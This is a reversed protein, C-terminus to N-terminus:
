PTSTTLVEERRATDGPEDDDALADPALTGGQVPRLRGALVVSALGAACSLLGVFAFGTMPEGKEQQLLMGGLATTVGLTLHQVATNLSMFSGRHQPATSATMMAMAPVMRGSAAITMLTTTALVVLLGAGPWLNTLILISVMTLLALARFMMLKGVRDSLWGIPTLTLFTAAGGLFYVLKLDEQRQGVNSVLFNPMYPAILFTTSVLAAMLAFARLHNADSLVVWVPTQETRHVLHGRMSPLVVAALALVGAGVCGLVIFPTNWSAIDALFLGLPVGLTSAVSFASMIVGMATGRRADPFVDGIVALVVSAAVGGFAGAVARAALLLPYNPAIGCLLTGLTFGAYLTLLATKRDFRDLFRSALLNAIGASITYAAVLFGFEPPTLTMEDSLVPSLPMIIMFDVIHTFQIAALVLLLLWERATLLGRIGSRPLNPQSAAGASEDSM